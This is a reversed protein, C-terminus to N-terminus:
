LIQSVAWAGSFLWLPLVSFCYLKLGSVIDDPGADARGNGMWADEILVGDYTRPGAFRLGLAGAMAAEPWGANVSKHKGADRFAARMASSAKAGPIVVAGLYICLAALRAPLYNAVDDLRASAWGFDRYRESRHGIMSDATNLAKYALLGPLGAVLYWFVPAVVGDSFNEALSELAARCVAPQDLAAPDRGVIQSVATRGAELGDNKLASAVAHVHSFLDRQAVFVFICLGELAWGYPLGASLEALGYGIIGSIGLLALITFVGFLRKAAPALTERNVFKELGAIFMGFFAVPHPVYRYFWRPDGIVVDLALGLLLLLPDAQFHLPINM